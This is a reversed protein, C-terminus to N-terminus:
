FKYHNFYTTQTIARLQHKHNEDTALRQSCNQDRLEPITSAFFKKWYCYCKHQNTVTQNTLNYETYLLQNVDTLSITNNTKNFTRYFFRM